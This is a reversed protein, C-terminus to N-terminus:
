PLSHKRKILKGAFPLTLLCFAFGYLIGLLCIAFAVYSAGQTTPTISLLTTISSAITMLVGAFLAALDAVLIASLSRNLETDSTENAPLICIKLANVFDKYMGTAVLVVGITGLIIIISPLDLYDIANASDMTNFYIVFAVFLVLILEVFVSHLLALITQKTNNVPVQILALMNEDAKTRYEENTLQEGSLLENVNIELIRCLELIISNDPIGKGCEWKSITRNSLHLLDALEQQTLNKQKRKESIFTGMKQLDM